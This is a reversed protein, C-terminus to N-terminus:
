FRIKLSFQIDRNGGKSNVRGFTSSTPDTSAGSWNSHNPWNFMEARFEVRSAETMKWAKSIGIDHNQGSPNDLTNRGANGYTGLTPKAFAAPNFWYNTDTTAYSFAPNGAHPDGILNYPQNGSGTGVGANDVGVWGPSIPSGSSWETVGTIRWGGFMKSVFSDQRKLFPLEYMYHVRFVHTRNLGSVAYYSAADYTNPLLTGKGETDSLNKSFTYAMGFALGNSFRRNVENQWGHYWTQGANETVRISGL